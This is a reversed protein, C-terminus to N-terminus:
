KYMDTISQLTSLSLNLYIPCAPITFLPLALNNEMDPLGYMM